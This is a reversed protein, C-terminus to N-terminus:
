IKGEDAFSYYCGEGIIIHDLVKIDIYQGALKVKETLRIDEVSPSPHGSPHNHALVVASAKHILAKQFIIKPDVVMSSMGGIHICETRIVYSRRDLLIIWFQEHDLDRMQPQLIDNICISSTIQHKVPIMELQRRRGLEVAAVVAAAKAKGIGKVAAIEQTTMKAIASLLNDANVLLQSAATHPIGLCQLLQRDSVAKPGYAIMTEAATTEKM